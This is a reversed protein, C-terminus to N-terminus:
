TGERTRCLTLKKRWVCFTTYGKGLIITLYQRTLIAPAAWVLASEETPQDTLSSAPCLMTAIPITFRQM